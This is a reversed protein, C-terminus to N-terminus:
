ADTMVGFVTFKELLLPFAVPFRALSLNALDRKRDFGVFLAVLLCVCDRDVAFVIFTRLRLGCTTSSTAMEDADAPGHSWYRVM